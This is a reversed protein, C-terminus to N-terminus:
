TRTNTCITSFKIKFIMGHEKNELGVAKNNQTVETTPYALKAMSMDTLSMDIAFVVHILILHLDM